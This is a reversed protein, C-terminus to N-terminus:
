EDSGKLVIRPKLETKDGGLAKAIGLFMKKHDFMRVWESDYTEDTAISSGNLIRKEQSEDATFSPYDSLMESIPVFAKKLKEIPADPGACEELQFNHFKTRALENVHAGCRLRMGIERAISRVYTGSGCHIYIVAIDKEFHMLRIEHIQVKQLPLDPRIGRRALDYAKEGKIKKASFIPPKQNFEGQFSAIVTELQQKSFRPRAFPGEQKGERDDTNTFFGFRIEALYSKDAGMYFPSLRTARGLCVPFVGTAIPDLTGLHGAKDVKLRQKVMQVVTHSTEGTPKHILVLGDWNM